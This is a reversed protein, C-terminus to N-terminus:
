QFKEVAIRHGAYMGIGTGVMSLTFATFMGVFDGLWWGIGSGVTAGVFIILKTMSTLHVSPDAPLALTRGASAVEREAM